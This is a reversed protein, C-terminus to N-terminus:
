LLPISPTKKYGENAKAQKPGKIWVARALACIELRDKETPVRGREKWWFNKPPTFTIADLLSKQGGKDLGGKHFGMQWM